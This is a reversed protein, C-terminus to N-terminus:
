RNKTHLRAEYPQLGAFDDATSISSPGHTSFAVHWGASPGPLPISRPIDSFNFLGLAEGGGARKRVALVHNACHCMAEVGEFGVIGFAPHEARLRILDRYTALLPAGDGELRSWQIRSERFTEESQPDPVPGRTTFAAFEAARGKRVAEVLDPDGHSIFYLFPNTEGLEEGMFLMPVFPSFLMVAAALRQQELSLLTGFRDGTARNGVQDHNQVCVVFQAPTCGTAPRGQRRGRHNAHGGTYVYGHRYAKAIQEVGDFDAYYGDKEGTLAVHVAHHFDDSWQGDLGFGGLPHPRILRPDNLDSEAILWRKRGDAHGIQEAVEALEELFPRASFDYIAHTADLRLADVDFDRLWQVANCLFYNRVEDSHPGDFNIANGWPTRYHDTFYPGFLALYNGEPGLHNYVVDLVVALGRGHCARVFRSFGEAGGYSDQVAFPYVGDYGWNRAGPFQAIPMVEVATVGLDVLHDLREIASDFTGGETFTGVHLEYIIYNNLSRGAWQGANEPPRLEVVQSPGHVGDPQSLSAPDPRPTQDGDLRYMYRQGPQVPVRATWYGDAEPTMAVEEHITADRGMLCLSVTRKGPAWVRFLFDDAGTRIAGM